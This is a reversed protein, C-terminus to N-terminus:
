NAIILVVKLSLCVDYDYFQVQSGKFYVIPLGMSIADMHIPLEMLICSTLTFLATQSKM